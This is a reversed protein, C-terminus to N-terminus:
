PTALKPDRPLWVQMQGVGRNAWVCYPIATLDRPKGTISGDPGRSAVLARGRLVTVGGLFDARHETRLQADDPLALNLVQGDHDRGEVCYVVPGREMAVRGVNEKVAACSVVRRIPMPLECELTDGETWARRIWAFGKEMKLPEPRGNVKLTAPPVSTGLYGYLDSPVPRGQAWCPIRLRVTFEGSQKPYLTLKVAGDWPYRTEQHVEVSGADMQIRARGAIFLNVYLDDARTVYVFGGILPFFRVVFAPCCASWFWPERNVSGMNVPERGDHLLPNAYFFRDGGLSVTCPAVNYLTRELLDIYKADRHLLFLRHNWLIAALAACTECKAEKNPLDYDETFGEGRAGTGGTLYLKRAVISEWIRDLAKVYRADGLLAFDTMGTYTFTACVAHGAPEDQEELPKHDLGEVGLLVRGHGRGRDALFGKALNLYKADNTALYLRVLALEIEPHTMFFTGGPGFTRCLLDANKRAVNLLERRGTAEYYAVAAEYLHGMNFLEHSNKHSWRAKGCMENWQEPSGTRPTYIYGDEQQAAAIKVILDALYKELEPDPHLRLSYSAGEIVKYVDSDCWTATASVPGPIRGAARAFNDIRGTEQCMKFCHPISVTRNVEIRPAWFQDALQVNQAPVSRAQLTPRQPLETQV